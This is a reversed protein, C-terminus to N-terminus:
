AGCPAHGRRTPPAAVAAAAAGAVLVAAAAVAAPVSWASAAAGAALAGVPVAGTGALRYVSAVRGFRERPVVRQRLTTTRVQWVGTAAEAVALGAATAAVAAANTPLSVSAAMAAFGGAVVALLAPLLWRDDWAPLRSTATAAAAHCAVSAGVLLGFGAEGVGLVDTVLLVLVGLLAGHGLAVAVVLWLLRWTVVCGRLWRWGQRVGRDRPAAGAHGRRDAAALHRALLAAAALSVAFAAAAAAFAAAAAVAFLAGAAVPGAGEGVGTEAVVVRGNARDLEGDPVVRPLLVHGVSAHAVEGAGAAVAAVYVGALVLWAAAGGGVAAVAAAALVAAAAVRVWSAGRLLRVADGRDAAAGVHLALVTWPLLSAAVVTSVHWPEDSLAAALLPLAATLIGSGFAGAAHGIWLWRWVGSRWSVTSAAAIRSPDTESRHGVDDGTSAM